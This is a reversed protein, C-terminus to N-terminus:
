NDWQWTCVTADEVDDAGASRYTALAPEYHNDGPDLPVWMGRCGATKALAVLARVLSRGVGQRRHGEDVGLEYLLMETGKDPHHIEVGSVFGVFEAADSGSAGSALSALLLHHGEAALFRDTWGPHVPADFLHSAAQVRGADAPGCAHITTAVM